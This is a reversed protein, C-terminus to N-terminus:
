RVNPSSAQSPNSKCAVYRQGRYEITALDGKNWFVTAVPPLDGAAAAVEGPPRKTAAAGDDRVFALV